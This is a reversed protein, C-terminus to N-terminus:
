SWGLSSISREQWTHIRKWMIRFVQAKKRAVACGLRISSSADNENIQDFSTRKPDNRGFRRGRWVRGLVDGFDSYDVFFKATTITLSIQINM